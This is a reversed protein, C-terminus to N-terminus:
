EEISIHDVQIGASDLFAVGSMEHYDRMYVVRTIGAQYIQKACHPCPSDTTYLTAGVSSQSSRALKALANAEAHLVYRITKGQEDECNNDFWSPTGNYGDAIITKDKVILCGVQRRRCSSLKSREIAMKMYPKDFKNM